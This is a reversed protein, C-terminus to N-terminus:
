VVAPYLRRINIREEVLPSQQICVTGNTFVKTIKFPGEKIDLKHKIDYSTVYVM